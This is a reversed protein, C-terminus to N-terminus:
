LGNHLNGRELSSPDTRGILKFKFLSILFLLVLGIKKKKKKTLGNHNGQIQTLKTETEPLVDSVHQLSPPLLKEHEGMM